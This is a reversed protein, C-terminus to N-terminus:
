GYRLNNQIDKMGYKLENQIDNLLWDPVNSSIGYYIQYYETYLKLVYRLCNKIDPYKEM